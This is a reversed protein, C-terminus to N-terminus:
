EALMARGLTDVQSQLRGDLHTNATDILFDGRDLSSDEVITVSGNVGAVADQIRSFDHRSVRLTINQHSQIRRLAVMALACVLDPDTSVERQIVKRAIELSLEVTKTEMSRSLETHVKVLEAVAIEYRKATTEIMQEGLQHGVREGERYGHEFAQKEVSRLENEHAAVPSPETEFAISRVNSRRIREDGRIIRSSM